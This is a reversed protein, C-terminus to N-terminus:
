FRRIRAGLVKQFNAGSDAETDQKVLDSMHDILSLSWSNKSNIKNESALRLSHLRSAPILAAAALSPASACCLRHALSLCGM